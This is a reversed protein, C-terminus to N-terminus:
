ALYDLSPTGWLSLLPNSTWIFAHLRSKALARLAQEEEESIDCFEKDFVILDGSPGTPLKYYSYEFLQDYTKKTAVQRTGKRIHDAVLCRQLVLETQRQQFNREEDPRFVGRKRCLPLVWDLSKMTENFHKNLMEHGFARDHSPFDCIENVSWLLCGCMEISWSMELIVEDSWGGIKQKLLKEERETLMERLAEHRNLKEMIADSTYVSDGDLIGRNRARFEIVSRVAILGLVTARHIVRDAPAITTFQQQETM